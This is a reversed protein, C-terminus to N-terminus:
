DLDEDDEFEEEEDEEDGEENEESDVIFGGLTEDEEDDDADDMEVESASSCEQTKSKGTGKIGTKSSKSRDKSRTSYTSKPVKKTTSIVEKDEESEGEWEDDEKGQDDKKGKKRKRRQGSSRQGGSDEQDSGNKHEELFWNWKTIDHIMRRSYSDFEHGTIIFGFEKFPDIQSIDVGEFDVDSVDGFSEDELRGGAESRLKFWIHKKGSVSFADGSGLEGQGGQRYVRIEGIEGSRVWVPNKGLVQFSVRPEGERRNSLLELSIHRRSVTGDKTHFGLGRGLVTPTNPKLDLKECNDSVIEM